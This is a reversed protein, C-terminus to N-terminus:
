HVRACNSLNKRPWLGTNVRCFTAETRLFWMEPDSVWLNLLKSALATVAAVEAAPITPVFRDQQMQLLVVGSFCLFCGSADYCFDHSTLTM